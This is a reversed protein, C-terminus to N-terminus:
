RGRTLEARDACASTPASAACDSTATVPAAPASERAAAAASGWRTLLAHLDARSFPKTIYDDMGAALCQERDGQMAMATQAIIVRRPGGAEAERLSATAGFGDLGPMHCDMLILDFDAGLAAQVAAQGDGVVTVRCGLSALMARAVRQNVLNDEALLIHLDFARSQAASAPAAQAIAPAQAGQRAGSESTQSAAPAASPPELRELGSGQSEAPPLRVTFWFCSGAGPESDLGIEGGMISVLDRCIALGLGTGGFRRTTSNDAQSFADFIKAQVSPDVGMGTDRVDIRILDSAPGAAPAVSVAVHGRETFKLANGILNSLVQGLRTPDGKVQPPLREDLALHIALGQNRASGAFLALQARVAARLDFATSELTVKGAEIKSFDLIDNLITLLARGSTQLLCALERQSETLPTELLMGAIGLVGNMPTRVEHSMNALFQSRVKMAHEATRQASIAQRRTQELESVDTLTIVLGAIAGDDGSFAARQVLFVRTPHEGDADLQVQCRHVGGSRLLRAEAAHQQPSALVPPLETEGVLLTGPPAFLRQFAANVRLTAGHPSRIAIADPISELLAEILRLNEAIQAQSRKRETIDKGTGRYGQFRGESDILPDGSTSVWHLRGDAAQLQYEFDRFPRRQALQAQHEALEQAGIRAGETEWRRLGLFGRSDSMVSEVGASVFVYRLEDDQEWYWDSSIATLARFRSESEALRRRTEERDRVLELVTNSLSELSTEGAALAAKGAAVLMGDATARMADIVAQQRASSERLRQNAESLEASSIAMSRNRMAQDREYQAYTQEVTEFFHPLQRVLAAHASGPAAAEILAALTGLLATVSEPPDVGLRRRLQRAFLPNM